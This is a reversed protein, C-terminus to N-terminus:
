SGTISITVSGTSEGIPDVLIYYSGAASIPVDWNTGAAGAADSFTSEGLPTTGQYLQFQVVDICCSLTTMSVSTVNFHLNTVGSGVTFNIKGKQGPSGITLSGSGGVSASAGVDTTVNYVTLTISGTSAGQPDITVKYTGSIPITKPDIFGGDTDFTTSFLSLNDPRTVKVKVSAMTVGSAKFSLRQNATASFTRTANQGPVITTVTLPTGVALAGTSDAPVTYLSLTISGTAAQQPDVSVKWAGAVNLTVTDFFGGDTGVTKSSLTTNDPRLISVKVSCCASAGMTVATLNLSVRQNAAGTFTLKANQGPASISVPTATGNAAISGAVDAPVTYLTIDASGFSAGQPDLFIKYNGAVPLTKVDMYAGAPTVVVGSSLLLTGDPKVVNLKASDLQASVNEVLVSIRQNLTGTFTLYNNQGPQASTVTVASGGATIPATTDPSVTYLSFTLSGTAAAGPDVLVTYTGDVPLKQADIFAGAPAAPTVARSTLVSSDPKLISVTGVFDTATVSLSVRGNTLGSFTFRNAQGPVTTVGTTPTGDTPVTATTDAPVDYAHVTINGTGLLKPNLFVTYVGDAPLVKPDVFAGATAFATPGSLTSGDPNKLTLMSQSITVGDVHLAVRHGTLGNFTLAANQGPTTITASTPTGDLALSGSADDPVAYLRLTMKGTYTSNPNIVLKYTGSSPLVQTDVFRTTKGQNISFLAIGNPKLLSVKSLTITSSVINLAVRQGATGTFSATASTGASSITVTVAPGGPTITFTSAGASGGM